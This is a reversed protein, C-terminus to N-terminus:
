DRLQVQWLCQTGFEAGRLVQYTTAGIIVQDREWPEGFDALETQQILGARDHPKWLADALPGHGNFAYLLVRVDTELTSPGQEATALIMRRYCADQIFGRLKPHHFYTALTRQAVEAYNAMM